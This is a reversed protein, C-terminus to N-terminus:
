THPVSLGLAAQLQHLQQQGHSRLSRIKAPDAEHRHAEFERRVWVLMEQRNRKDPIRYICHVFQRYLSLISQKRIFDHLGPGPPLRSVRYLVSGLRPM